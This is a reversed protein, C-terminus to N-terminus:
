LTVSLSGENHVQCAEFLGPACLGFCASIVDWFKVPRYKFMRLIM